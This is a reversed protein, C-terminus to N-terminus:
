NSFRVGIRYMRGIVDYLTNNANQGGTDPPRTNAANVVNAYIQTKDSANWNVGVDFYLISDVKDFNITPSQVTSAPCTGPACVITNRGGAFVGGSYWRETLNVGWVDNQYSQTEQLKWNLVNFNSNYQNSNGGGGLAGAIEVNRQTGPIGSDVIFKSVHTVLSRLVFNGPVDYDQLDFQYSTEIDFGDTVISGFNFVKSAVAQLQSPTNAAGTNTASQNIGNATTIADQQCFTNFGNFCLDEVQQLGLSIIPGKMAIRYYDVSAQFGPLFEPQWVLGVETTLSKEPKLFQNGENLQRVQQGNASGPTIANVFDNNVSGNLGSPPFFLESLNPARIDRSQLARLRIGPIPTEWTIGVKWTNADGATSYRAHRGGLDLDMKGWFSDNLLPVGVELFVENVHFTGRGDHYNGANWAGLSGQTTLGCDIFPDTCPMNVTAPTSASVGGSYPDARQSFHEERYEYGTAISIPGAWDDIPSGNVSFSFAEQRITQISTPGITTGGPGNQGDFYAIQGPTIYQGSFPNFPVCGFAQAITNRCTIQGASNFVADQALNFRSFQGNAGGAGGPLTTGNGNILPAGSLPMNYIKISTDNEGHTFYSEWNWNKGFADFVGDAGVVARRMTRTLFMIQDTPINAWDSGYNFNSASPNTAAGGLATACASAFAGPTAGTVGFATGGFTQWLYANDCRMVMGSKSSNGQAPINETRALGYTLTAFVETDPAIDYSVRAYLNGRLLPDYLGQTFQKSDNQDGPHSPTGVCTGNLAGQLAGTASASCTGALDYKFPKGNSDFSTYALPGSQILGYAATQTGQVVNFYFTRPQGAPPGGSQGTDAGYSATGSQRALTRGGINPQATHQQAVPYRPLLGDNYNYEGAVEFHGKGGLFRTGAAFQFLVNGVDGYNSMGAQANTKFGEFKKDTVFNIVGAVADSGWSASAGGTVVDVRQILMQPMQSVDVAGNFNGGVVRQSDLLTLTRLPSLGRLGLSSLGILGTTTSGTNYGEGTSGQLAPLQTIADFVNPKAQQELDAASVVTTPTPADFGASQLRTSSVVVQEVGEQAMAAGASLALIAAGGALRARTKTM